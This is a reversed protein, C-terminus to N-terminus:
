WVTPRAPAFRDPHFRKPPYGHWIGDLPLMVVFTQLEIIVSPCRTVSIWKQIEAVIDFLKVAVRDYKPVM